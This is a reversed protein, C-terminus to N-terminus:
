DKSSDNRPPLRLDSDKFSTPRSKKTLMVYIPTELFLRFVGWFPHNVISFGILISSKPIGNNKSVGMHVHYMFDEGALKQDIMRLVSNEMKENRLFFVIESVVIM